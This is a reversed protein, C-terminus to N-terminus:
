GHTGMHTCGPALFAASTLADEVSVYQYARNVKNTEKTSISNLEMQQKM